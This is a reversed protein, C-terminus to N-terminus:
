VSYCIMKMMILGIVSKYWILFRDQCGEKGVCMLQPKLVPNLRDKIAKLSYIINDLVM